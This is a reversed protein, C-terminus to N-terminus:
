INSKVFASLCNIIFEFEECTLVTDEKKEAGISHILVKENKILANRYLENQIASVFLEDIFDDYEKSFRDIMKGQWYLKGDCKWDILNAYKIHNAETGSYKLVLNQQKINEFKIAQLVSEISSVKKGRFTFEYPFLNSLLKSNSNKLKFGINLFKDNEAVTEGTTADFILINDYYVNEHKCSFKPKLFKFDNKFEKFKKLEQKINM